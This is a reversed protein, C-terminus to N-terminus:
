STSLQVKVALAFSCIWNKSAAADFGVAELERQRPWSAVGAELIQVGTQPSIM